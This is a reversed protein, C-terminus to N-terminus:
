ESDVLSYNAPVTIRIKREHPKKKDPHIVLSITYEGQEAFDHEPRAIVGTGGDGFDWEYRYIEEKFATLARFRIRM